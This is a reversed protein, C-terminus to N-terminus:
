RRRRRAVFLAGFVLLGVMGSSSGTSSCGGVEEDVADVEDTPDVPEGMPPTPDSPAPAVLEAHMVGYIERDYFFEFHGIFKDCLGINKAGPIISTKYPQIYEDTCTYISTVAVDSPLPANAVEQLFPSGPSLDYLAPWGVADAALPAKAIGAQPSIFIVLRSVNPAGGLSQIYHRAIVGGTCEALIDIRDQGSENRLQEIVEGLLVSNEALDGSLLDPPEYVVPRFGDRELRAVIPDFSVAPITVGTILLVVRPQALPAPRPESDVAALAQAHEAAYKDVFYDGWYQPTTKDGAPLGVCTSLLSAAVLLSQSLM